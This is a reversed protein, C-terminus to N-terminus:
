NFLPKLHTWFILICALSLITEHIHAHREYRIKLRRFRNVWSHTREVVSRHCGSRESSEIGRRGLRPVIGRGVEKTYESSTM